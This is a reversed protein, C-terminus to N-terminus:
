LPHPVKTAFGSSSSILVSYLYQSLIKYAETVGGGNGDLSQFTLIMHM